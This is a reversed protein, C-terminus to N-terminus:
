RQWPEHNHNIVELWPSDRTTSMAKRGGQRPLRRRGACALRPEAIQLLQEVPQGRLHVAVREVEVKRFRLSLDEQRLAHLQSFVAYSAVDSGTTSTLYIRRLTKKYISSLWNLFRCGKDFVFFLFLLCSFYVLVRVPM